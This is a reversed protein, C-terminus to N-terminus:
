SICDLTIARVKFSDLKSWFQWELLSHMNPIQHEKDVPGDALHDPLYFQLGNKTVLVNHFVAYHHSDGVTVTSEEPINAQM